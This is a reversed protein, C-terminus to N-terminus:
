FWRKIKSRENEAYIKILETVKEELTMGKFRSIAKYYAIRKNKEFIEDEFEDYEDRCSM